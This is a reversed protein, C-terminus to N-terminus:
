SFGRCYLDVYLSEDEHIPDDLLALDPDVQSTRYGAREVTCGAEETWGAEEAAARLEAFDYIYKHGFDHMISNLMGAPSLRPIGADQTATFAGTAKNLEHHARLFNMKPDMYGSLWIALDPTSLRLTGGPALLRKAEQLFAVAGSFSVHEIFDIHIM